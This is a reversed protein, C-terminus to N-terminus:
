LLESLTPNSTRVKFFEVPLAFPDRTVIQDCASPPSCFLLHMLRGSAGPSQKAPKPPLGAAARLFQKIQEGSATLRYIPQGLLKGNGQARGVM